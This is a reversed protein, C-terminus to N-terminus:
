NREKNKVFGIIFISYYFNIVVRNIKKKKM